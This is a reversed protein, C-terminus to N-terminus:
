RESQAVAATIAAAIEPQDTVTVAPSLIAQPKKAVAGVEQPTYKIVLFSLLKTSFVLLILFVFVFGMGLLILILGNNIQEILLEKPMQLLM